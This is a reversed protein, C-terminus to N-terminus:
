PAIHQLIPGLYQQAMWWMAGLIALLVAIVGGLIWAKTAVHKLREKITAVDERITGVHDELKAIRAEMSGDHPPEGGNAVIGQPSQNARQPLYHVNQSDSM